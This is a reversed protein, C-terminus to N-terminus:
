KNESINLKSTFSLALICQAIYYITIEIYNIYEPTTKDFLIFLLMFDSAFFLITGLFTKFIFGKNEKFYILLSFSKSLMFGIIIAYFIIIPAKSGLKINENSFIFIIPISSIILSLVMDKISVKRLTIFASSYFIHTIAFSIVSLYFIIPAVGKFAMFVDGFFAFVFGILILNKYKKNTFEGKKAASFGLAIFLFSSIAKLIRIALSVSLYKAINLGLVSLFMLILIISM